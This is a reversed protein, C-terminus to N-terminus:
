IDDTSPLNKTKLGLREQDFDNLGLSSIKLTISLNVVLKNFEIDSSKNQYSVINEGTQKDKKLMFKLSRLDSDGLRSLNRQFSLDLGYQGSKAQPIVKLSFIPGKRVLGLDIDDQTLLVQRANMMTQADFRKFSGQDDRYIVEVFEDPKEPDSGLCLLSKIRIIKANIKVDVLTTYDLEQRDRQDEGCPRLEASFSSVSLFLGFIGIFALRSNM